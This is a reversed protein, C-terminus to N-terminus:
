ERLDIIKADNPYKLQFLDEREKMFKGQRFRTTVVNDAQDVARIQLPILQQSLKIEINSFVTFPDNSELTIRVTDQQMEQRTVSYLTDTGTLFKSPAFDDEQPEYQSIVVRNRNDDYVRSIGDNVLVRQNQSVVKYENAGVWVEGSTEQTQGTYSDKYRHTFDASFIQNSQFRDRLQQLYSTEQGKVASGGAWLLLFITLIIYKAVDM